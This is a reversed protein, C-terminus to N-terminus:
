IRPAPPTYDPDKWTKGTIVLHITMDNVGYQRAIHAKTAGGRAYEQRISRVQDWTLVAAGHKEGQVATKEKGTQIRSVESRTSWCLNDVHNNLPNEDIHRIIHDPPPPPGHYTECVLRGIMVRRQVGDVQVCVSPQGKTLLPRLWKGRPGM